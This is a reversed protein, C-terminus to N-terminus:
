TTVLEGKELEKLAFNFAETLKHRILGALDKDLIGDCLPFIKGTTESTYKAIRKVPWKEGLKISRLNHIRDAEKLIRAREEPHIRLRNFCFDDREAKDSFVPEIDPKTVLFVITGVTNGFFRRITRVKWAYTDEPIDHLLAAQLLEFDYLGFEDMIIIAVARPHEFFREGTDRVQFLYGHGQKAFKYADMIKNFEEDTVRGRLRKEFAHRDEKEQANEM